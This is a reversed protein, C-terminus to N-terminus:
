TYIYYKYYIDYHLIHLHSVFAYILINILFRKQPDTRCTKHRSSVELQSDWLCKLNPRGLIVSLSWGM